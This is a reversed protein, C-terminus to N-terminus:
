WKQSALGDSYGMNGFMSNFVGKLGHPGADRNLKRSRRKTKKEPKSGDSSSSGEEVANIDLSSDSRKLSDAIETRQYYRTRTRTKGDQKEATTTEETSESSKVSSRDNESNTGKKQNEATLDEKSKPPKM